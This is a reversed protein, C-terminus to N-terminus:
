AYRPLGYLCSRVASETFGTQTYGQSRTESEGSTWLHLMTTCRSRTAYPGSQARASARRSKHLSEQITTGATGITAQCMIMLSCCCSCELKFQDARGAHQPGHAPRIPLIHGHEPRPGSRRIYILLWWLEQSLMSSPATSLSHMVNRFKDPIHM